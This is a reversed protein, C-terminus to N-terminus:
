NDVGQEPMEETGDGEFSVFAVEKGDPSFVPLYKYEEDKVLVREEGSEISYLVLENKADADRNSRLFAIKKGDPSWTAELHTDSEGKTICKFENGDADAYWIDISPNSEEERLRMFTIYKGDPSWKPEEDHYGQTITKLSGDTMDLRYISSMGKGDLASFLVYREDPSWEAYQISEFDDERFDGVVKAEGSNIDMFYFMDYYIEDQMLGQLLLSKGDKSWGVVVEDGGLDPLVKLENGSRDVIRVCQKEAM